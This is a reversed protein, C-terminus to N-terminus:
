TEGIYSDDCNDCSIHYVLCVVREKIVKDNPQVLIQRLMNTPKFYVKLGYGEMVKRVQKSVRKLYPIVVPYRKKTKDLDPPDVTTTETRASPGAQDPAPDPPNDEVVEEVPQDPPPM